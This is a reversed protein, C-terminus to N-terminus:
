TAEPTEWETHGQPSYGAPSRQERSEGPLLEPTTAMERELPYEWGPSQEWM